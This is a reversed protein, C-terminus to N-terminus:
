VISILGYAFGFLLLVFAIFSLVARIWGKTKQRAFMIVVAALIMLGIGIFSIWMKTMPDIDPLQQLRGGM